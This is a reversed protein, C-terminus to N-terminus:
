RIQEGLVDPLCGISREIKLLMPLKHDLQRLASQRPPTCLQWFQTEKSHPRHWKNDAPIGNDLQLPRDGSLQLAMRPM